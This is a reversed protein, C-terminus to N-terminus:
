RSIVRSMTWIMYNGSVGAFLAARESRLPGRKM